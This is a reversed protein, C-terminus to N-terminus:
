LPAVAVPQGANRELQAKEAAHYDAGAKFHCKSWEPIEVVGGGTLRLEMRDTTAMYGQGIVGAQKRWFWQGPHKWYFIYTM